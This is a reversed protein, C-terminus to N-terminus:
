EPLTADNAPLTFHFTSGSGPESDIWIRGEHKVILEKCLMLGLGTGTEQATGKQSFSIDMRFLKDINEKSIGTGTDIVHVVVEKGIAEAKITVSGNLGTFKLANSILNQLISRTMNKDAYVTLGDDCKLTLTINKKLAIARLLDVVYEIQLSLNLTEPQFELRNTQLRSWQLLNEVLDYVNKTSNRLIGIFKRREGDSLTDYEISLIETYGLLSHFPSKLDHALISFFMDKSTNADKLEDAYAKLKERAAKKETIDEKVALYNIIKGHLNIIPTISVEEWYLEGNKKKNLFEGNWVKGESITDWLLKYFDDPHHGSKMFSLNHGIVESTSYGTVMYFRRNVYEIIGKDDTIVVVESSQELATSLKLIREEAIRRESIALELQKKSEFFSAIMNGIAFFEHNNKKITQLPLTSESELSQAILKLPHTVWIRIAYSFLLGVVVSLFIPILTFLFFSHPDITFQSRSTFNVMILDHGSFDKLYQHNVINNPNHDEPKAEHHHALPTISIASNTMTELKEIFKSTWIRGTFFYGQAPLTHESDSSVTVTAGALEMVGKDTMMYFHCRTKSNIATKILSAPLTLPLGSFVTSDTVTFLEQFGSSYVAAFNMEMPALMSVINEQAWGVDVTKIFDTMDTWTSYDYATKTCEAQKIQLISGISSGLNNSYLLNFYQTQRQLSLHYILPALILIGTALVMLGM